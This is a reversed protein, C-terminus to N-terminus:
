NVGLIKWWTMAMILLVAISMVAMLSGAKVFDTSRIYGSAYIIANSPTGVVLLYAFASSIATAFGVSMLSTASIAAMNLTIPGTVAVAAGDSMTNSVIMVLISVAAVLLLGSDAGIPTLVTLFSEALWRAAGTNKM